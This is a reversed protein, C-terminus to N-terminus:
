LFLCRLCLFKGATEKGAARQKFLQAKIIHSRNITVIQVVQERDQLIHAVGFLTRDENM